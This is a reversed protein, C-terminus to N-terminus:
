EVKVGDIVPHSQAVNEPFWRQQQRPVGWCVWWTEVVGWWFGGIGTWVVQWGGHAVIRWQLWWLVVVGALVTWRIASRYPHRPVFGPSVRGQTLEHVLYIFVPFRWCWLDLFGSAWTDLVPQFRGDAWFGVLYVRGMEDGMEIPDMRGHFLDASYWPLAVYALLFLFYSWWLPSAALYLLHL